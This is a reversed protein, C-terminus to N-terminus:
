ADSWHFRFPSEFARDGTTIGGRADLGSMMRKLLNEPAEVVGTLKVQVATARAESSYVTDTENEIFTGRVVIDDEAAVQADQATWEVGGKEGFRGAM